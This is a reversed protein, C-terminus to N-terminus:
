SGVVISSELVGTAEGATEVIVTVAVADEANPVFARYGYESNVSAKTKDASEESDQGEIAEPTVHFAEFTHMSNDAYTLRVYYRSDPTAYLQDIDGELVLYPGNVSTVLSTGTARTSAVDIGEREPAPMYPPNSAFFQIHREVREVVVDDVGKLAAEGMDYPVRKTFVGTRYATAFYPLLANGFSDRYMMLTGTTGEVQSQTIIFADEVSSTDNAYTFHRSSHWLPGVEVAASDPHLMGEVDGIHEDDMTPEESAYTEHERGIADMLANYGVLAGENNWHSDRAYYLVKDQALLADSMNVYNIDYAELLPEIRELNSQGAGKLLYYPMNQPYLSAKNPCITFTFTKGQSEVYEQMLSLNVVANLLEHDSMQNVRQYDDLTGTYYLWGNKGVVVNTTSSTAFLHEKITADADVLQTRFAFRDEFWAGAQSLFSWNPSGDVTLQPWEALERKEAGAAQSALPMGVVPVLLALTTAGVFTWNLWSPVSRGSAAPKQDADGPNATEEQLEEAESALETAVREASLVQDPTYAVTADPSAPAAEDEQAVEPKEAADAQAPVDQKFRRGRRPTVDQSAVDEEQPLQAVDVADVQASQAQKFRRGRKPAVEAVELQPADADTEFHRAHRPAKNADTAM